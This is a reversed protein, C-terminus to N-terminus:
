RPVTRTQGRLAPHHSPSLRSRWPAARRPATRPFQHSPRPCGLQQWQGMVRPLDPNLGTARWAGRQLEPNPRVQVAALGREEPSRDASPAPAGGASPTTGATPHAEPVARLRAAGAGVSAAFRYARATQQLDRRIESGLPLERAWSDLDMAALQAIRRERRTMKGTGEPM